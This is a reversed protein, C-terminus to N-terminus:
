NQYFPYDIYGKDDPTYFSEPRAPNLALNYELRHVLDPNAIFPVGLSVLDARGKELTAEVSERNYGGNVIMLGKFKARITSLLQEGEEMTRASSEIVHLYLIGRNNLQEVLTEYTERIEPYSPMSNFQNFPSLRVGVKDKGVAEVVADVVELVFKLRGAVNNGYADTRTNVHPNLFQELLYGNAGHIEVGDFGAAMANKAAQAHEKITAAIDEATMPAPIAYPQMGLDDTWIEGAVPISSPAIVKAEEPMNVPHSVRGTHMLQVFIKGGKEHVADTVKKWGAVQDENFIGPIRAYGLGNPSPAVGETIILGASARQAYYTVMMDNPVHGAARSRTMPAMVLRNKLKLGKLEVPEFPNTRTATSM